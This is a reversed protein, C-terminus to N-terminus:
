ARTLRGTYARERRFGSLHRPPDRPATKFVSEISIHRADPGASPHPMTGDPHRRAKLGSSVLYTDHRGTMPPSRRLASEAVPEFRAEMDVWLASLPSLLLARFRRGPGRQRAPQVASHIVPRFSHRGQRTWCWGRHHRCRDSRTSDHRRLSLGLSVRGETRSRCVARARETWSLHHGARGPGPTRGDGRGDAADVM